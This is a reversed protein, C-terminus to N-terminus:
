STKQENYIHLCNSNHFQNHTTFAILYSESFLKIAQKREEENYYHLCLKKANDLYM